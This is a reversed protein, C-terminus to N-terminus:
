GSSAHGCSRPPQDVVGWAHGCAWETARGSTTSLRTAARIFRAGAFQRTNGQDVVIMILRGGAAGENTSYFPSIPPGDAATQSVFDASNIQRPLGDVTLAFDDVTLGRVPRGQDDVVSV